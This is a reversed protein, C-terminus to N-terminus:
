LSLSVSKHSWTDSYFAIFCRVTFFYLFEVSCSYIGWEIVEDLSGTLSEWITQCLEVDSTFCLPGRQSSAALVAVRSDIPACQLESQTHTLASTVAVPIGKHTAVPPLHPSLLTSPCCLSQTLGVLCVCFFVLFFFWVFMWLFWGSWGCLRRTINRVAIIVVKYLFHEGCINFLM